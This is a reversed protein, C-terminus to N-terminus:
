YPEMDYSLAARRRENTATRRSRPDDAVSMTDPKWDLGGAMDYMELERRTRPNGNEDWGRKSSREAHYQGFGCKQFEMIGGRNPDHIGVFLRHGDPSFDIGCTEGYFDLTQKTAYSEANIVSVIDASEAAVLVRKGSGLPSFKLSRAGAVTAAITQLPKGVGYADTWMRADWIKILKDQNGTAVHWGNDAWACAFGYDEHGDLAQVLDGTEANVITVNRSDGVLVRLRHDPSIASCNIPYSYTQESTFQNTTCDLVRLHGDNSAFAVQPLGSQRSLHIQVHNTIPNPDQTVLGEVHDTGTPADIAAMAYEGSFGGAVVVNHDAAITSIQIGTFPLTNPTQVIPDTLDMKVARQNFIPNISYVKSEGAYLVSSRSTCALLNRLQFHALGIRPKFDM